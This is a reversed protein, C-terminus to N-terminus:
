IVYAICVPQSGGVGIAVISRFAMILWINSAFASAM